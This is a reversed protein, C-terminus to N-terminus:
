GVIPPGPYRIASWSAPLAYWTGIVMEHLARYAARLLPLRHVRWRELFADVEEPSADAWPRSVGALWRRTLSLDLLMFLEGVEKRLHAPLGAVLTGVGNVVEAVSAQRLSPEAPLAGGLMVPAIAVLVARDAASLASAAASQAIRGAAPPFVGAVALVVSAGLGVRLFERRRM